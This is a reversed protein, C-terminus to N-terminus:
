ALGFLVSFYHGAAQPTPLAFFVWGLAVYNFTLAVGGWHLWKSEGERDRNESSTGMTRSKLFEGWRNHAFLGFGQWLGWLAFNWTIGHWLGILLMTTTQGVFIMAWNPLPRRVTRMARILPNFYYSRFWQTLSMHWNNWFQTLNPKLYPASFNEPLRVGLTTSIGIVIDTYGSFDYYIQFAYAYLLIWAWAAGQVQFANTASMAFLALSDALAYKKFMGVFFRRGAWMWDPSDAELPERLDRVFREIRDLPGATLSPFFVVFTLYEGLTVPPLRGAQRDRLTHILRFAIFSFGLWRVDLPTALSAEQGNIARLVGSAGVSLSPTKLVVLVLVLLLIFVTLMFPRWLRHVVFLFICALVLVTLIQVVPPPPSATLLPEALYRM